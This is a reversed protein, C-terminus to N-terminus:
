SQMIASRRQVYKRYIVIQPLLNSLRGSELDVLCPSRGLTSIPESLLFGWPPLVYAIDRTAVAKM